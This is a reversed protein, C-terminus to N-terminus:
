SETIHSYIEAGITGGTGSLDDDLVRTADSLIQEMKQIDDDSIQTKNRLYDCAFKGLATLLSYGFTAGLGKMDHMKQFFDTRVLKLRKQEKATKARTLFDHMAEIDSRTQAIYQDKLGLVAQNAKDLLEQTQSPIQQFETKNM